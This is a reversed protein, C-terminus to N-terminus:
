LIRGRRRPPMPRWDPMPGSMRIMATRRKRRRSAAAPIADGAAQFDPCRPDDTIRRLSADRGPGTLQVWAALIAGAAPQPVGLACLGVAIICSFSRGTASMVHADKWHLYRRGS